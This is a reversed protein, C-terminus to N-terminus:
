ETIQMTDSLCIRSYVSNGRKYKTYDSHNSDISGFICTKNNQYGKSACIRSKVPNLVNYVEHPPMTEILKLGTYSGIINCMDFENGFDITDDDFKKRMRMGIRLREAGFYTKSLSLSIEEIASYRLDIEIGRAIGLYACDILVPIRNKECIRMTHDFNELLDCSASFPASIILADGPRLPQKDTIESFDLNSTTAAIRHYAFEGPFNRIRKSHHRLLFTDFAQTTGNTYTISKLEEIGILKNYKDNSIYQRYSELFDSKITHDYIDAENLANKITEEVIKLYAPRAKHGQATSAFVEKTM